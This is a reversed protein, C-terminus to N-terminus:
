ESEGLAKMIETIYEELKKEIEEKEKELEKLESYEKSIDIEEDDEIPMAYLSVNLNFGNKEIEDIKAVKSFGKVEKFERFTEVIKKINNDGLRNLKRVEPHSEYENSANIFIIKGKREEPKNKNFIIVVGPAGTNYFLKEPLLVIAEILDSKIIAERIKKESSGRFLAGNDLIIGVKKRAHYLMLQVWGWDMSSKPPLKSTIQTYIKKVKPVEILGNVNYDLNWPPNAVVYDCQPFRPNSLSDGIFIESNKIDHLILNMKAIVGMIENREQGYLMLVNEGDKGYKERTYDRSVILMSGSGLAPDLVTLIGSEEDIELDLLNVVLQVIELPTYNEGEKARQPAFYNLIWMYADGVADYPIKSFDLSNFIQIISEITHLNDENVFGKFGLVEVLKELDVLKENLRSIRTLANALKALTERSKTVEHWTLLKQENEDYLVYYKTNALLYAQAKTHGKSIFSDAIENWKDSLAKYFLFLLLAKYDAGGRLQDAAAKLSGFLKDRTLSISKDTKESNGTNDINFLKDL